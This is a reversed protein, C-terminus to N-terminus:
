KVVYVQCQTDKLKFPRRFTSLYIFISRVTFNHWQTPFWFVFYKMLQFSHKLDNFHMCEYMGM